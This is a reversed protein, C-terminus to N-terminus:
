NSCRTRNTPVHEIPEIFNTIKTQKEAFGANRTIETRKKADLIQSKLEKIRSATTTSQQFQNTTNIANTQQQHRTSKTISSTTHQKNHVHPTPPLVLSTLNAKTQPRSTAKRQPPILLDLCSPDIKPLAAALPRRSTKVKTRTRKDSSPQQFYSLFNIQGDHLSKDDDFYENCFYDENNQSSEEDESYMTIHQSLVEPLLRTSVLLKSIFSLLIIFNHCL